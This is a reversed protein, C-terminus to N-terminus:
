DFFRSKVFDDLDSGTMCQGAGCAEANCEKLDEAMNRGGIQWNNLISTVKAHVSPRREACPNGGFSVVGIHKIKDTSKDLWVTPGGSDGQCTGQSPLDPFDKQGVCIMIDDKFFGRFRERCVDNIQSLKVANLKEPQCRPEGKPLRKRIGWGSVVLSTWWPFEGGDSPDPLYIAAAKTGEETNLPIKKELELIAFDYDLTDSGCSTNLKFAYNPHPIISKVGYIDGDSGKKRHKGVEVEVTDKAVTCSNPECSAGRCDHICHAATMIFKPCLITGGCNHGGYRRVSVQWPFTNPKVQCGGVIKNTDTCIQEEPCKDGDNGIISRSQTDISINVGVSIHNNTGALKGIDALNSAASSHSYLHLLTVVILGDEWM